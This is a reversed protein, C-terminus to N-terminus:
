CKGFCSKYGGEGKCTLGSLFCDAWTRSSCVSSYIPFTVHSSFGVLWAEPPIGQPGLRGLHLMHHLLRSTETAVPCAKPGSPRPGHLGREEHLRDATHHNAIRKLETPRPTRTQVFDIGATLVCKLSLKLLKQLVKLM